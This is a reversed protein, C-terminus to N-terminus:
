YQKMLFEKMPFDSALLIIKIKKRDIDIRKLNVEIADTKCHLITYEAYPLIRPTENNVYEAFPQGVSGVNVMINGHYRNLMQVHTHGGAFITHREKLFYPELKKVINEPLLVETNSSPSGHYCLLRTSANLPIEITPVFTHLYEMELTSLKSRCWEVSEHIITANTYKKVMEPYFLFEEHNGLICECHLNHLLALVENPQPGLTLADGLFITKDVSEKKIDALVTELSVANGHIDSILAIKM